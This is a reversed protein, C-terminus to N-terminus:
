LTLITSHNFPQLAKTLANKWDKISQDNEYNPNKEILQLFYHSLGDWNNLSGKPHLEWGIEELTWNSKASNRKMSTTVWNTEDDEGGRSVPELHDVTPILEWYISHTESMKWNKHYKIIEPFEISLLKVLGPFLLKEGSYRDIFGDDLFVQCMQLKSYNRGKNEKKEFPYNSNLLEVCEAKNDNLLLECIDTILAAKNM